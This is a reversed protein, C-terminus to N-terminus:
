ERSKEVIPVLSYCNEGNPVLKFDMTCCSAFYALVKQRNPNEFRHLNISDDYLLKMIYGYDHCLGKKHAYFKVSHHKTFKHLFDNALSYKTFYFDVKDLFTVIWFSQSFCNPFSGICHIIVGDNFSFLEESDNVIFNEM